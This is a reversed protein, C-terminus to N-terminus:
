YAGLGRLANAPVSQRNCPPNLSHRLETELRLREADRSVFRVGIHTAGRAVSCKLGLHNKEGANLREYLSEAEGVYFPEWGLGPVFRCAIYVASEPLFETGWPYTEFNYKIGNKGPWTVTTSM